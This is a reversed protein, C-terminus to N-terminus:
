KFVGNRTTRNRLGSSFLIALSAFVVAVFMVDSFGSAIASRNASEISVGLDTFEALYTRHRIAFVAGAITVGVAFATQRGLAVLASATGLRSSPVSAMITSTVVPEFFASGASALLLGTFLGIDNLDLGMQSIWFLALTILFNGFILLMRPGYRDYLRGSVPALVMRFASFAAIFIGMKTASYGLANMMFFPAVLLIGGQSLYHHVLILVSLTYQRQTFLSVDVLPRSSRWETWVLIPISIVGVFAAVLVPASLFGVKGGQNVVLLVSAMTGFLAAAGLWDLSFRKGVVRDDSLVWLGLISGVLAIPVRSYFISRWDLLDILFGGVFPGTTLGLGVVAGSVGLAKGRDKIPFQETILANVNSLVMASGIGQIIRYLILQWIAFSISCLLMGVAFVAMGATYIRRRGYVDGVWGLTMLLGVATVWYAVQMWLVTSIDTGFTVSVAPFATVTIGGDLTSSLTGISIVSLVVWRNKKGFRSTFDKHEMKVWYNPRVLRYSIM